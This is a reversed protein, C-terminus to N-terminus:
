SKTAVVELYECPAVFTGDDAKNFEAVVNLLKGVLRERGATDLTEFAKLLPGFTTCFVEVWHSPSRYRFVFHRQTVQLAVSEGFLQRLYAETGWLIPSKAGEPPPVVQSVARFFAGAFGSPTWNAM